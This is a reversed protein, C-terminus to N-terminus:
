LGALGQPSGVGTCFDYGVLARLANGVGCKSSANKIDRFAGTGLHGYILSQEIATSAAFHGALNAIGALLPSSVSTGGVSFWSSRFRVWVGTDPNAVAALDAIGRKTGVVSAVPNQFAPRAVVSSKGAGANNWTAEAPNLLNGSGDRRVTTGGAAVLQPLVAPFSTVDADGTSAFFVVKNKVFPSTFAAGTEGAFENNGWSNSVQGGGAAAVLNAAVQEAQFLDALSNSKAEVLIVKAKPAMAHAMEVDLAIELGWGDDRPPRVGNAFVIQFNAATPAPLGFQASYAQLDALVTPDDFADVIAIAKSGGNTNQTVQQPNCAFTKPVLAYLCALSAPTEFFLGPFPPLDAHVGHLSPPAARPDLKLYRVNTHARHGADEARVISSSPVVVTPQPQAVAVSALLSLALTSLGIFRPQM